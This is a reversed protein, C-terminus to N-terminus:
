NFSGLDACFNHLNQTYIFFFILLDTNASDTIINKQKKHETFICIYIQMLKFCKLKFFM